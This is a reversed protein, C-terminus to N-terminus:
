TMCVPKLAINLMRLRKFAVGSLLVNVPGKSDVHVLGRSIPYSTVWLDGVRGTGAVTEGTREVTAQEM